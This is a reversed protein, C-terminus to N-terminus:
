KKRLFNMMRTMNGGFSASGFLGAIGSGVAALAGAGKIAQKVAHRTQYKKPEQLRRLTETVGKNHGTFAKAKRAARNSQREQNQLNVAAITEKINSAKQDKGAGVAKNYRRVLRDIRGKPFAGGLSGQTQADVESKKARAVRDRDRICM